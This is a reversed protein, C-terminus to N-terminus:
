KKKGTAGEGIHRLRVAQTCGPPREGGIYGRKKQIRSGGSEVKEGKTEM